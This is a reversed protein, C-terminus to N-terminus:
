LYYRRTLTLPVRYLVYEPYAFNKIPYTYKKDVMSQTWPVPIDISTIDLEKTTDLLTYLTDPQIFTGFPEFPFIPNDDKNTKYVVRINMRQDAPLDILSAIHQYAYSSEGGLDDVNFFIKYDPLHFAEIPGTQNWPLSWFNGNFWEYYPSEKFNEVYTKRIGYTHTNSIYNLNELARM